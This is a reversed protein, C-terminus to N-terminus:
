GVAWTLVYAPTIQYSFDVTVKRLLNEIRGRHAKKDVPTAKGLASFDVIRMDFYQLDDEYFLKYLTEKACWAILRSVTDPAYEDERIFRGAIRDVRNSMYEVDVAVDHEKSLMVAAYGRTHSIAIHWGEVVPRGSSEHFIVLERDGTMTHLLAYVALKEKRRSDSKSDAQTKEWIFEPVLPRLDEVENEIEWLGLLIDPQLREVKILAM